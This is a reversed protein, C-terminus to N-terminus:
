EDDAPAPVDRLSNHYASAEHTGQQVDAAMDRISAFLISWGEDTNPRMDPNLIEFLAWAQRRALNLRANRSRVLNQIDKPM